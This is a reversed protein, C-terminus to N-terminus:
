VLDGKRSPIYKQIDELNINRLIEKEEENSTELLKSKIQEALEQSKTNGPQITVFKNTKSSIANEPEARIKRNILAFSIRLMPKFWNKKGYVMFSGKAIYEGSPPSKSIQDPNVSYTDVSGLNAQWAKSYSACFQSAEELTENDVEKGETKILVFPSGPIETHFVLDHDEMHKKILTENTTADKGGVCLFNTSSFFWRFKEYWKREKKEERKEVFSSVAEELPLDKIKDETETVAEEAGKLKEKFKKSKDYYNSANEELSKNLDITINVGLDVIVKKEALDIEKVKPEDLKEKLGEWGEKDVIENIKRIIDQLLPYNLYILEAKDVSEEKTTRLSEIATKQQELRYGLKVEKEESERGKEEEIKKIKKPIFFEDVTENFTNFYRKELNEYIRLNIPSVDKMEGIELVIQPKKKEKILMKIENLIDLVDLKDFEKCNKFKDIGLRFCIEEAYTGGLGAERALFAIVQKESSSIVDSFEKKSTKLIDLPAPPLKYVEGKKIIRDKWKQPELALIIKDERDTLIINGKSFLEIILQYQLTRIVVIREFDHQKIRTIRQNELRKRLFMCFNSPMQDHPIKYNTTFIKGGGLILNKTGEKSIFIPIELEKGSHYVKQIRGDVLDQLEEIIFRIDLSSLEEKM